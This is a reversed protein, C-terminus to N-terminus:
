VTITKLLDYARQQAPTPTTVIQFTPEDSGAGRRRCLNQVITSLDKLLTPFSHVVTGDDLVKAHVKRLTRRRAGPGTEVTAVGGSRGPASTTM